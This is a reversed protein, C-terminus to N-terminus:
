EIHKSVLDRSENTLASKMLEEVDLETRLSLGCKETIILSLISGDMLATSKWSGYLFATFNNLWFILFHHDCVTKFLMEMHMFKRSFSSDCEICLWRRICAILFWFFDRLLGCSSIGNSSGLTNSLQNVDFSFLPRDAGIMDSVTLMFQKGPKQKHKYMLSCASPNSNWGEPLQHAPLESCFSVYWCFFSDNSLLTFEVHLNLYIGWRQRSDAMAFSTMEM